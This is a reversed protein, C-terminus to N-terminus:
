RRRSGGPGRRRLSSVPAWRPSGRRSLRAVTLDDLLRETSIQTQVQEVPQPLAVIEAFVLRDPARGSPRIGEHRHAGARVGCGACGVVDTSTEITIVLEAAGERADLLTFGDLRLMAEALGTADSM